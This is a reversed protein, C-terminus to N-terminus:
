DTFLRRYLGIIVLITNSIIPILAIIDSFEDMESFDVGWVIFIWSIILPILILILISLKTDWVKGLLFLIFTAVHFIWWIFAVILLIIIIQIFVIAFAELTCQLFFRPLDLIDSPESTNSCSATVRDILIYFVLPPVVLSLYLLITGVKVSRNNNGESVM